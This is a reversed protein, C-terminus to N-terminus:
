THGPIIMDASIRSFLVCLANEQSVNTFAYAAVLQSCPDVSAVRRGSSLTVSDDYRREELLEDSTAASPPLSM